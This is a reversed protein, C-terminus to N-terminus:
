GFPPKVPPVPVGGEATYFIQLARELMWDGAGATM